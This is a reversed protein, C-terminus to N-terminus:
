LAWGHMIRVGVGGYFNDFSVLINFKWWGTIFNNSNIDYKKAHYIFIPARFFIVSKTKPITRKKHFSLGYPILITM